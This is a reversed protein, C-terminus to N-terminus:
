FRKESNVIVDSKGATRFATNGALLTDQREEYVKIKAKIEKELSEKVSGEFQFANKYWTSYVDCWVTTQGASDPSFTIKYWFPSGKKTYVTALPFFHLWGTMNFGCAALARLLPNMQLGAFTTPEDTISGSEDGVICTLILIDVRVYCACSIM